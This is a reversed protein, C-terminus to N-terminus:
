WFIWSRNIMDRYGILIYTDYWRSGCNACSMKQSIRGGEFDLSGGEDLNSNDCQPCCTGHTSTYRREQDDFAIASRFSKTMEVDSTVKTLHSLVATLGVEEVLQNLIAFKDTKTLGRM